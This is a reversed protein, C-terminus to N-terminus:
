EVPRRIACDGTEDKERREAAVAMEPFSARPDCPARRYPIEVIGDRVFGSPRGIEDYRICAGNEITFDGIYRHSVKRRLNPALELELFHSVLARIVGAHAVILLTHGAHISQLSLVFDVTRRQMQRFSEGEPFVFDPDKKYPPYNEEVWPKPQQFLEGYNVENLEPAAHVGACGRRGAFYRASERARNLASSYYADFRVDRNRILDDIFRLDSEWDDVPPADGWGMIKRTANNVTRYHRVLIFRM